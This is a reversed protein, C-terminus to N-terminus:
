SPGTGTQRRGRRRQHIVNLLGGLIAPILLYMGYELPTEIRLKLLRLDYDYVSQRIYVCILLFGLFGGAVAGAAFTALRDIFRYPDDM